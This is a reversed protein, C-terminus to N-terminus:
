FYVLSPTYNSGSILITNYLTSSTLLRPKKLILLNVESSNYNHVELRSTTNVLSTKLIHNQLYTAVQFVNSTANNNYYWYYGSAFTSNSVTTYCDRGKIPYTENFRFAIVSRNDTSTYASHLTTPIFRIAVPYDDPIPINYYVYLTFWGNVHDTLIVCDDCLDEISNIYYYGMGSSNCRITKSKRSGYIIDTNVTGM